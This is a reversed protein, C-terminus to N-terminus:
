AEDEKKSVPTLVDKLNVARNDLKDGNIHVVGGRPQQGNHIVFAIHHATFSQGMIGIQITGRHTITGAFKGALKGNFRLFEAKSGFVTEPRPKWFLNGTLPNYDLLLAFTEPKKIATNIGASM